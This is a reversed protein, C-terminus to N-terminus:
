CLVKVKHLTKKCQITGSLEGLHHGQFPGWFFTIIKYFMKADKYGPLTQLIQESENLFIITPYGMRGNLLEIALENPAGVDPLSGVQLCSRPLYHNRKKGM